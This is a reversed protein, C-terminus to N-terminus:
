CCQRSLYQEATEWGEYDENNSKMAIEPNHYILGKLENIVTNYDKSCLKM